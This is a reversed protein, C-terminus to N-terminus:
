MEIIMFAKDSHCRSFNSLIHLISGVGVKCWAPLQWLQHLLQLVPLFQSLKVVAYQTSCKGGHYFVKKYVRQMDDLLQTFKSTLINNFTEALIGHNRSEKMTVGLMTQWMKYTSFATWQERRAVNLIWPQYSVIAKTRVFLNAILFATM